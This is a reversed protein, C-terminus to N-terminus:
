RGNMVRQHVSCAQGPICPAAPHFPDIGAARAGTFSLFSGFHTVRFEQPEFAFPVLAPLGYPYSLIPYETFDNIPHAPFDAGVPRRAPEAGLAEVRDELEALRESEAQGLSGEGEHRVTIEIQPPLPPFSPLATNSPESPAPASGPEPMPRRESATIIGAGAASRSGALRHGDGDLNTLMIAQQGSETRMRFIRVSEQEQAENNELGPSASRARRQLFAIFTDEAGTARLQLIEDVGLNIHSDTNEIQQRIVSVSVDAELLRILDDFTVSQARVPGSPLALLLLPIFWLIRGEFAAREM